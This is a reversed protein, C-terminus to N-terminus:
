TSIDLFVIHVERGRELAEYITHVMLILQNVTSDRPRFNSQLPTFFNIELLFNYLRKFVIKELIQVVIDTFVYSSLQRNNKKFPFLM